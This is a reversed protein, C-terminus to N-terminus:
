CKGCYSQHEEPSNNVYILFILLGLVSGQPVGSVIDLRFLHRQCTDETGNWNLYYEIWSFFFGRQIGTKYYLIKVLRQNPFADFAKKIICFSMSNLWGDRNELSTSVKDCFDPLNKHMVEERHVWAANQSLYNRKHLYEDMQQRIIEGQLKCATITLSVLM